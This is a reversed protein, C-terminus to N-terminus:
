YRGSATSGKRTQPKSKVVKATAARIRAIVPAWTRTEDQRFLRASPYGPSTERDLLWHWDPIHPPLIWAPKRLAAALHAISNDVSIVLDLNSTLGATDAFDGLAQGFQLVGGCQDLITQDIPRVDKKLSVFTANVNLV